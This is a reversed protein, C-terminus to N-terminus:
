QKLNLVNIQRYLLVSTYKCFFYLTSLVERRVLEITLYKPQPKLYIVTIVIHTFALMQFVTINKLGLYGHNIALSSM